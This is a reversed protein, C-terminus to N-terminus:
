VRKLEEKNDKVGASPGCEAKRDQARKGEEARERRSGSRRLMGEDRRRRKLSIVRDKQQFAGADM